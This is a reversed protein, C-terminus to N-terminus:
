CASKYGLAAKAGLALGSDASDSFDSFDLFDVRAGSELGSDVKALIWVFFCM